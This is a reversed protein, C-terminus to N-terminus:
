DLGAVRLSLKRHAVTYALEPGVDGPRRVLDDIAWRLTKISLGAYAAALPPSFFPDFM